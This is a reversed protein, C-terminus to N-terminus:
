ARRRLFLPPPEIADMFARPDPLYPLDRTRPDDLLTLAEYGEAEGGQQDRLWM